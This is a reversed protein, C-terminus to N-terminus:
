ADETGEPEYDDPEPRSCSRCPELSWSSCTCRSRKLLVVLYADEDEVQRKM